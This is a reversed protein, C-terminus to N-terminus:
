GSRTPRSPVLKGRLRRYIFYIATSLIVWLITSAICYLWAPGQELRDLWSAPMFSIAAIWTTITLAGGAVVAALRHKEKQDVPWDRM